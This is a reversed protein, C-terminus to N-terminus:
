TWRWKVWFCLYAIFKGFVYVRNSPVASNIGFKNLEILSTQIEM